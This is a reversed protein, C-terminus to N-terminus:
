QALLTNLKPKSRFIEDLSEIFRKLNWVSQKL